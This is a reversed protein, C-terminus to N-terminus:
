AVPRGLGMRDRAQAVVPVCLARAKEAGSALVAELAATDPRIGAYREQVPRLYEVVSEAVAGKFDGYQRSAFDAEVQEMSVGSTFALIEILNSIGPKDPARVVEAGSDTTASRIKKAIQAPDDLV